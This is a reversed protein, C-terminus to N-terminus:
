PASGYGPGPGEPGTRHYLSALATSGPTFPNRPGSDHRFLARILMAKETVPAAMAQKSPARSYASVRAQHEALGDGAM